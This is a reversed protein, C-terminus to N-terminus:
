MDSDHMVTLAPAPDDIDTPGCQIYLTHLRRRGTGTITVQFQTTQNDIKRCYHRSMWLIDWIVGPVDNHYRKDSTAMEVLAWVSRTLYVPFKYLQRAMQALEGTLLVQEGDEVAQERTYSYVIDDPTFLQTDM